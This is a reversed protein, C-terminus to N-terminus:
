CYEPIIAKVKAVTEAFSVNSSGGSANKHGGGNFYRSCIQQVSFDGKSRMSLKVEQRRESILVAMKFDKLKLIYNIVGEMDGRKIQLKVHDEQSLAIIGAHYEPFVEM